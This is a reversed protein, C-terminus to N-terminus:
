DDVIDGLYSLSMKRVEAMKSNIGHWDIEMEESTKEILRDELSFFKLINEIRSNVKAQKKLLEVYLCKNFVISLATGHFSNTVVYSSNALASLFEIPDASRLCKCECKFPNRIPNGVFLVSCGKRAALEEIFEKMTQTLEFCYVFIYKGQNESINFRERWEDKTLLMTPDIDLRSRMIGIENLLEIGQEERVSCVSYDNLLRKYTEKYVPDLKAIGFSASYSYKKNKDNVFDLFFSKDFNHADYNWVQDSGTIFKDFLVLSKSIDDTTFLESLKLYNKRYSEFKARRKKEARGLM